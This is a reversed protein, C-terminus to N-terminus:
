RSPAVACNDLRLTYVGVGEKGRWIFDDIMMNCWRYFSSLFSGNSSNM